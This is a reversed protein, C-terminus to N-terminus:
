CPLQGHAPNRIGDSVEKAPPADGNRTNRAAGSL